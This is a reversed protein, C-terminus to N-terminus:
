RDVGHEEGVEGGVDDEGDGEGEGVQGGCVIERTGRANQVGQYIGEDIRSKIVGRGRQEPSRFM